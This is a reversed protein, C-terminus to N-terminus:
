AVVTCGSFGLVTSGIIIQTGDDTEKFINVQGNWNMSNLLEGWKKSLTVSIFTGTNMTGGSTLPVYFKVSLDTYSRVDKM